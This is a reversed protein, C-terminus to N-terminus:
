RVDPQLPEQEEFTLLPMMSQAEFSVSWSVAEKPGEDPAESAIAWPAVALLMALALALVLIKM